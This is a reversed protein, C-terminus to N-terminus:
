PLPQLEPKPAAAPARDLSTVSHTRLDLRFRRGREDTVLLAHADAAPRLEAIFVDQKDAEKGDGPLADYVKVIWREAGTAVDIAVIYGGNQPLGRSRTWLPAEFRLGGLVVPLAEPVEAREKEGGSARAAVGTLLALAGGFCLELM